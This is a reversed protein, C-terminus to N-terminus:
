IVAERDGPVVMGFEEQLRIIDRPELSDYRIVMDKSDLYEFIEKCLSSSRKSSVWSYHYMLIESGWAAPNLVQIFPVDKEELKLYSSGLKSLLWDIKQSEMLDNWKEDIVLSPSELGLFYMLDVLAVKSWNNCRRGRNRDKPVVSADPPILDGDEFNDPNLDKVQDAIRFTPETANGVIYIGYIRNRVYPELRKSIMYQIYPRYLEAESTNLSRWGQEYHNIYLIRITSQAKMISSLANNKQADDLSYITHLVVKNETDPPLEIKAIQEPTLPQVKRNNKEEKPRGRKVKIEVVPPDPKSMVFVNFDFMTVLAWEAASYVHGQLNISRNSQIGSQADEELIQNEVASIYAAEFVKAKGQASLSRFRAVFEASFPNIEKLLSILMDVNSEEKNLSISKLNQSLIGYVDKTYYSMPLKEPNCPDPFGNVLFFNDKDEQLYTRLGFRNLISVKSAVLDKLALIIHKTRINPVMVKIEHLSLSNHQAFLKILTEKTENIVEDAYLVDFTSYDVASPTMGACSYECIDYDCEASYDREGPKRSTNRKMHPFCSIAAEKMIRMIRRIIRDKYEAVSYMQFDISDRDPTNAIAVHYYVYVRIRALDPNLNQQILTQRFDNLLPIHSTARLARFLAQLIASPTWESGVFQIIKVNAVNIGDRGVRSSILVKVYEGYRNAPNNVADMINNFQATTTDKSLLAYRKAKNFTTTPVIDDAEACFPRIQQGRGLFMPFSGTYKEFGHAELSVALVINGSGTVLNGYIFNVGDTTTDIYRPDIPETSVGHGVHYLDIHSPIQNQQSQTTQQTTQQSLILNPDM